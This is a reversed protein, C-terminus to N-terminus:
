WQIVRIEMTNKENGRREILVGIILRVREFDLGRWTRRWEVQFAELLAVDVGWPGGTMSSKDNQQSELWWFAVLDAQLVGGKNMM